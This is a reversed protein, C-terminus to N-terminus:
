WGEAASRARRDLRPGPHRSSSELGITGAGAIVDPHSYPSIFLAQGLRRMNSARGEAEDYDACGILEAGMRRIADKKTRPATTPLFVTLPLGDTRAAYALAQGHNGASATVLRRRSSGHQEVCRWCPMSPAAFRSRSRRSFRKSSSSFMVGAHLGVAMDSRRLPTRLVRGEIRRGGHSCRRYHDPRRPAPPLLIEALRSAFASRAMVEDIGAARAADILDTHM